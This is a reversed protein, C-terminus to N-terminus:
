KSLLNNFKSQFVTGYHRTEGGGGGGRDVGVGDRVCALNM